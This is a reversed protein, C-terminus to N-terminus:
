VKDIIRSYKAALEKSSVENGIFHELRTLSECYRNKSPYPHILISEKTQSKNKQPTGIVIRKEDDM